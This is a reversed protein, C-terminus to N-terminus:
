TQQNTQTSKRKATRTPANSALKQKAKPAPMPRVTTARVAHGHILMHPNPSAEGDGFNITQSLAHSLEDISSAQDALRMIAIGDSNIFELECEALIQADDPAQPWEGGCETHLYNRETYKVREGGSVFLGRKCVHALVPTRSDSRLYADWRARLTEDRDQHRLTDFLKPWVRRPDQISSTSTRPAPFLRGLFGVPKTGDRVELKLKLGLGKVIGEFTPHYYSLGDDGFHLGILRYSEEPGFLHRLCHYDVAAAILTNGDTTLPSGSLRSGDPDFRGAGTRAEAHYEARIRSVVADRDQRKAYLTRYFGVEVAERLSESITGDYRSYDTEAVCASMGERSFLGVVASAIDPLPKGPMYWHCRKLVCEKAPYTYRSLDLTHATDTASINRPDKPASYVEGKVFCKVRCVTDGLVEKMTYSNRRHQIARRQTRDVQSADWPTISHKAINAEKLMHDTLEKCHERFTQTVEVSNAVDQHRTVEAAADNSRNNSPVAPAITAPSPLEGRTRPRDTTDLTGNEDSLQYTYSEAINISSVKVSARFVELLIGAANYNEVTTERTPMLRDLAQQLDMLTAIKSEKYRTYVGAFVAYPITVGFGTTKSFLSINLNGQSLFKLACVNQTVSTRLRRLPANARLRKGFYWSLTLEFHEPTILVISHTRSIRYKDLRCHTTYGFYNVSLADHSYDWIKHRYEGGSVVNVVLEDNQFSWTTNKHLGYLSDPTMTYMLIPQGYSIWRALDDVYYDIDTMMIIHEQTLKDHHQEFHLDRPTTYEHLGHTGRRTRFSHSIEYPLKNCRGVFQYMRSEAEKRHAAEWGHGHLPKVNANKFSWVTNRFTQSIGKNQVLATITSPDTCTEWALCLPRTIRSWGLARRVLSKLIRTIQYSRVTNWFSRWTLGLPDVPYPNAERYQLVANRLAWCSISGAVTVLLLYTAQNNRNTRWPWALPVQDFGRTLLSTM